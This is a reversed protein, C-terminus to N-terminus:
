NYKNKILDLVQKLSLGTKLLENISILDDYKLTKTRTFEM